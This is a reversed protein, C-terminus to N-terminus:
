LGDEISTAAKELTAASRACLVLSAGAEALGEAIALGLGTSSGGVVATRGDLRINM